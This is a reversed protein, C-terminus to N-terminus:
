ILITRRCLSIVSILLYQVNLQRADDVDVEQTQALSPCDSCWCMSYYLRHSTIHCMHSKSLYYSNSTNTAIRTIIELGICASGLIFKNNYVALSRTKFKVLYHLLM